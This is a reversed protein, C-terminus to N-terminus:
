NNSGTSNMGGHVPPKWAICLCRYIFEYSLMGHGSATKFILTPHGALKSNTQKNTKTMTQKAVGAKSHSISIVLNVAQYLICM